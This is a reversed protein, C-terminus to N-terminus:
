KVLGRRRMEDIVAQASPANPKPPENFSSWAPVEYFPVLNALDPRGRMVNVNQGHLDYQLKALRESLTVFSRLEPMTMNDVQGSEAKELLKGEFDSVQGQGKLQKRAAVTAQALGRIVSRTNVLREETTNGGIGMTQAIQDVTNRLTAAPGVNVNGTSIASRIRNAIDATQLAGLAGARSEAIMPGIEKALGEGTKVDVRVNPAPPHSALREAHTRALRQGEPSDLAIGALKLARSFEDPKEPASVIPKGDPGYRTAGPALSFPEQKAPSTYLPAYGGSPTKGVLTDGAGVKIPEKPQMQTFAGQIGIGQLVPDQSQALRAYAGVINGPIAPQQMPTMGMGAEDPQITQAPTGTGIRLADALASARDSQQRQALAARDKQAQAVGQAGIYGKLGQALGQTWSLPIVRNGVVQNPLATSAQERLMEAYKRRQDIEQAEVSYPDFADAM